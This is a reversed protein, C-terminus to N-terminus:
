RTRRKKAKIRLLPAGLIEIRFSRFELAENKRVKVCIRLERTGTGQDRSGLGEGAAHNLRLSTIFSAYERGMEAKAKANAADARAWCDVLGASSNGSAGCAVAAASMRGLPGVTTMSVEMPRM